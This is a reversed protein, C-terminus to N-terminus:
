KIVDLFKGVFYIKELVKSQLETHKFAVMVDHVKEYIEVDRIDNLYLNGIHAFCGYNILGTEKAAKRVNKANDSVISDVVINFSNLAISSADQISKLLEEHNESVQTYDYSKVFVEKENRPKVIVAVQQTHNSKNKWGDFQLTGKRQDRSLHQSRLSEYTKDLLTTKLTEVCPLKYQPNLLKVFKKFLTSEILSFKLNCGFFLEALSETISHQEELVIKNIGVSM